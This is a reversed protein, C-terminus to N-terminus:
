GALAWERRIKSMVSELGQMGSRKALSMWYYSEVWAARRMAYDGLKAMAPAHGAAASMGLLELYTGDTDFDPIMRHTMARAKKYLAEGALEEEETNM